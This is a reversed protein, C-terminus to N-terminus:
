AWWIEGHHRSQYFTFFFAVLGVQKTHQSTIAVSFITKSEV